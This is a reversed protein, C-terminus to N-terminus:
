PPYGDSSRILGPRGRAPVGRAPARLRAERGRQHDAAARRVARVGVEHRQDDAVGDRRPRDRVGRGAGRVRVVVSVGSMLRNDTNVRSGSACGASCTSRTSPSRRRRAPTSTRRRACRSRCAGTASSRRSGAWRWRATTASRSTTSSASATASGSRAASSSRRGSRRCASAGRRRPDHHPLERPPRPRVRRPPADARYGAEPGAIDFGVVGADRWRVACEAVEVSRAAQRMATVLLKMSSRSGPRPPRRPAAAPLGRADGRGVEDLTLGRETSLEPAMASRPMSSATPPSTRPASPPSGSSRTASRCSASPTRSRRSTCSSRSATPAAASGPRSSTSTPRRCARRLRVRRRPRRDDGAAPRRRPPRPAAGQAGARITAESLM